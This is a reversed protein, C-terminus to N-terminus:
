KVIKTVHNGDMTQIEVIYIGSAYTNFDVSYELSYINLATFIEKGTVDVITISIISSSSEISLLDKVPNPYYSVIPATDFNETNLVINSNKIITGADGVVIASTPSVMFVDYLTETAGTDQHSWTNGGDNTIIVNGQTSVVIGNNADYFSVGQFYETSGTNLITWDDGGNITRAVLGKSGVAFGINENVFDMETMLVNTTHFVETWTAGSNVTKIVSGTQVAIYGTTPSTFIVDTLLESVGSNGETVTSGGNNTIWLNGAVGVFYAKTPSVASVAWLSSSDPPTISTWTTGGDSTRHMSGVTTAAGYGYTNDFFSFDRTARSNSLVWTGGGDTTEMIKNFGGSAFGKQSDMFYIADLRGTAASNIIDWQQAQVTSLSISILSLILTIKIMISDLYNFITLGETINLLVEFSFM